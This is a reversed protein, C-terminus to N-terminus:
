VMIYKSPLEDSDDMEHKMDDVYVHSTSSGAQLLHGGSTVSKLGVYYLDVM